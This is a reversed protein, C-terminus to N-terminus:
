NSLEPILIRLYLFESDSGTNAGCGKPQYTLFAVAYELLGRPGPTEFSYTVNKALVEQSDFDLVTEEDRRIRDEVTSHAYRVGFQLTRVSSHEDPKKPLQVTSYSIDTSAGTQVIKSPLTLRSAYTRLFDNPAVQHEVSPYLEAFGNWRFEDPPSEVFVGPVGRITRNITWGCHTAISDMRKQDNLATANPIYWAVALILAYAPLQLLKGFPLHRILAGIILCALIAAGLWAAAIALAIPLIVLGM